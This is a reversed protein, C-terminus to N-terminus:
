PTLNDVADQVADQVTDEVADQVTDQVQDKLDLLEQVADFEDPLFARVLGLKDVLPESLTSDSISDQLATVPVTGMLTVIASAAFAGALVGLALGAGNDVWGLLLVKLLKKLSRALVWSAAMVVVFIIAFAAAQHVGESDGFPIAPAVDKYLLGALVVGAIGGILTFAWSIVGNRWGLFGLGLVLVLIIVDVWNM